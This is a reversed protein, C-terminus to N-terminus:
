KLEVITAGAGGESSTAPYFKSVHPNRNLLETVTKRLIGMGFGHIIRVRDVEALSANDLFKDVNEAAEEARQGLLNIERYTMDWKPGIDIRVNAPRKAEGSQPLVEIVDAKDVQLRMFGAEVELKGNDLVRRVKAPERVDRLRVRMGADIAVEQPSAKPKATPDQKVGTVQEKFEQKARAVLRVANELAKKSETVSALEELARKSEQDFQKITQEALVEFERIRKQERQQMERDLGRRETALETKIVEIERERASLDSLKAHLDSLFKAIDREHGSMHERARDIIKAPIGLRSAIDIAASKGPVGLRLEYTPQLTEEDYGMCANVVGDTTAGFVKMPLLHTSVLTMSGISKFEELLAVGLAGGEEPDTARGLEDLLVLSEFTAQEEISKVRAMHASFSSLSEAISQNDGLDALVQDFFPFTAERAPVPLGAHAMLALLGVTKLTVTKGGTNPGSILLMRNFGDLMLTSPVVSKREHRLVDELLPHRAAKLVLERDEGSFRPIVCQFKVGFDGKAFLVDLEAFVDLTTAIADAQKRMRETMDRLIRHVERMEDDRLRVLDNNLGITELPEIFLTRGTGSAAHVVGDVRGKQGSVIPVVFRENRITVFDEQMVGDDAHLKAFKELSSQIAKRQREMDRRIRNLAVSAHDALSGDPNIKGGFEQVYERFSGMERAKASLRPFGDELGWLASRIDESLELFTLVARLEDGGLVAGEIRLKAVPDRVDSAGSFRLRTAGKNAAGASLMRQYRLAEDVEALTKEVVARDGGPRVDALRERGMPSAVFREVVELM